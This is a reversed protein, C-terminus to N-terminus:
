CARVQRSYARFLVSSVSSIADLYRVGASGICFFLLRHLRTRGKDMM